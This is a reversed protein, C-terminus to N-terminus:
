VEANSSASDVQASVITKGPGANCAGLDATFSGSTGPGADTGLYANINANPDGYVGKATGGIAFGIEGTGSVTANFSTAKFKVSGAAFSAIIKKLAKQASALTASSTFQSCQGYVYTKKQGAVPSPKTKIAGIGGVQAGGVSKGGAKTEHCSAIAAGSVTTSQPAKSHVTTGDRSIGPPAFTVTAGLGTCAVPDTANKAGATGQFVAVGATPLLLALAGMMIKRRM